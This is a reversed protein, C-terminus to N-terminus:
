ESGSAWGHSGGSSAKKVEVDESVACPVEKAEGGTEAAKLLQEPSAPPTDLSPKLPPFATASSLQLVAEPEEFKPAHM